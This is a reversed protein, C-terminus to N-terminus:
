RKVLLMAMPARDSEGIPLCVLKEWGFRALSEALLGEDYRKFRFMSLRRVSQNRARVTAVADFAYSGPIRKPVATRLCVAKECIQRGFRAILAAVVREASVGLTQEIVNGQVPVEVEQRAGNRTGKGKTSKRPSM